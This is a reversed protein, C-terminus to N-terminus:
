PSAPGRGAKRERLALTLQAFAALVAPDAAHFQTVIGDRTRVILRPAILWALGPVYVFKANVVAETEARKNWLWTQSIVGDVLRTRSRLIWVYLWLMMALTGGLLAKVGGSAQALAPGDAARWAAALLVLMVLSALGKATRGFAPGEVAPVADVPTM